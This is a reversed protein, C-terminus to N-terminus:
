CDSDCGDGNIMNGDDCQEAGTLIGDGCGSMACMGARCIRGTGCSTGPAPPTGAMCPMGAGLCVEAGDCPNGDSCDPDTSCTFTCDNDCGDGDVTNRDDCQESRMPDTFGDGCASAVCAGSLCILMTGCANGDPARTTAPVCTSTATGA